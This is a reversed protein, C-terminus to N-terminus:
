QAWHWIADRLFQACGPLAKDYYQRFREDQVYLQAIGKHKQVNYKGTTFSLWRRHLATLERGVEDEPSRNQAVAAELKTQIEQNLATWERYQEPTLNMMVANAEDMASDGYAQRVETGYRAENEEVLSRKRAEFNTQQSMTKTRKPM